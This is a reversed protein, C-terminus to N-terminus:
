ICLAFAIVPHAMTKAHTFLLNERSASFIISFFGPQANIVHSLPKINAVMSADICAWLFKKQRANQSFRMLLVVTTTIIIQVIVDTYLQSHVHMGIFCYVFISWPWM